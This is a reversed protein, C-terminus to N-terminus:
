RRGTALARAPRSTAAAAAQCPPGSTGQFELAGRDDYTRPGAGTDATAPDDVRNRDRADCASAGPAASDASDVAPSGAQLNFDTGPAVWKPDAQIGHAEVSPVAARLAALSGYSNGGWVYMVGAAALNTMNYDMIVNMTSNPDVRINGMTRPSGIGNDVSINNEIVAGGSAGTSNGEVNIGATVNKYVTNGIFRQRPSDLNDIGHDGNSYAINGIILNDSAGTYIQIGTDENAFAVNGEIRNGSAGRVEIGPAARTYGRANGFATNGKVTVGNTDGTLYIGSDTNENVTVGTILSAGSGGVYIGKKITSSSTTRGSRTVQGGSVTVGTDGTLYIGYGTSDSVTDNALTVNSSNGVYIGYGASGTVTNDAFTVNSSLLARLGYSTTNAVAFGRITVWQAGSLDFAAAQGSVTVGPDAAFTIPAAQSAVSKITVKEAYTGARVQVTDGPKAKAAAQAITCFPSATTSCGTGQVVLTAASAPGVTAGTAALCLALGAAAPLLRRRRDRM